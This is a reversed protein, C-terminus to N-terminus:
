TLGLEGLLARAELAAERAMAFTASGQPDIDIRLEDAHEPDDARYPWVHLGLCGLNVAWLVHALDVIVLANSPTGNPTSVVTTSLWDPANQPVRKQFFSPGEAGDPYRQMLVPRGGLARLVPQELALYYRALDLKTEGGERFLVKDPSSLTLTRGAAELEITPSRPMVVRNSALAGGVQARAACGRIETEAVAEM